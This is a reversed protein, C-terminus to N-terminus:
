SRWWTHPLPPAPPVYIALLAKRPLAQTKPAPNQLAAACGVDLVLRKKATNVRLSDYLDVVDADSLQLSIDAASRTPARRHATM